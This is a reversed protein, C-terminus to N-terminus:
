MIGASFWTKREVPLPNTDIRWKRCHDSVVPSCLRFTGVRKFQAPHKNLQKALAQKVLVRRWLLWVLLVHLLRIICQVSCLNRWQVLCKVWTTLNNKRNNGFLEKGGFLRNNEFFNECLTHVGLWYQTHCQDIPQNTVSCTQWTKYSCWVFPLSPPKINQSWIIVTKVPGTETCSFLALRAAVM